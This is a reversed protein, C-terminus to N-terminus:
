SKKSASCNATLNTSNHKASLLIKRSSQQQNLSEANRSVSKSSFDFYALVQQLKDNFKAAFEFFSNKKEFKSPLIHAFDAVKIGPLPQRPLQDSSVLSSAQPKVPSVIKKVVFSYQPQEKVQPAAFAAAAFLASFVVISSVLNTKSHRTM